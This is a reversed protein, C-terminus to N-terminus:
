TKRSRIRRAVAPGGAVAGAGAAGGFLYPLVANLLTESEPVVPVLYSAGLSVVARGLDNRAQIEAVAIGIAAETAEAQAEVQSEIVGLKSQLLVIQDEISTYEAQKASLFQTYNFQIEQGTANLGTNPDTTKGDYACAGLVLAIAMLSAIKAITIYNKM